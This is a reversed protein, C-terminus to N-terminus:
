KTRLQKLGVFDMLHYTQSKMKEKLKKITLTEVTRVEKVKPAIIIYFVFRILASLIFIFLIAKIGIITSFYSSIIGGIIAGAVAGSSNIINFYTVCLSIRQRSVADFIFNGAALNFGAWIFGAFGEIMILYTITILNTKLIEPLLWLIPILPIFLGVLRMVKVSGYKDILRGHLPLFLLGGVISSITIATYALYSLQLDKLMYVAFFPSAIATALTILSILLVFRGFNNSKMKKAFQFFTFYKTKDYKLEPEYKKVFYQSSIFRGIMAISFIIAFGTFLNIKEFYDLIFGAILMSILGVIGAIRNRRGFYKGRDKTVLDQMWSSWAPGIMSGLIIMLTYFTILSIIAITSSIKNTFFLAGIIIVPLWFIAQLLSGTKAIKKRSHKQMLKITQLQAANAFLNPISSLLGIMFNQANLALAYPTIYKMGMGDMVSYACGEKISIKRAEKKLEEEKQKKM